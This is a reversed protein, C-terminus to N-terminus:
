LVRVQISQSFFFNPNRDIQNVTDLQLARDFGEVLEHDQQLVGDALHDVFVGDRGNYGHARDTQRARGLGLLAVSLWTVGSLLRSQEKLAVTTTLSGNENVQITLVRLRAFIRLLKLLQCNRSAGLGDRKEVHRTMPWGGFGQDAAALDFLQAVQDLGFLDIQHNEIVDERGTLFTVEFTNELTAHDVARTQNEINEGLAGTGMFALQLDFQGLKLVHTRPQNAAPSVKFPLFATDAQATRTFGLQFGVPAQQPNAQPLDLPAQFLDAALTFM